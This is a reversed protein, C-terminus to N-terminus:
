LGTTTWRITSLKRGCIVMRLSLSPERGGMDAPLVAGTVRAQAVTSTPQPSLTKALAEQDTDCVDCVGDIGSVSSM